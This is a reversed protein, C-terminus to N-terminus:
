KVKDLALGIEMAFVLTDFPMNHEIIYKYTGVESYTKNTEVLHESDWIDMGPDGIYEGKEDRVRLEYDKSETKGSPSIETVKVNATTYLYGTAYRFMLSMKYAQNNDEITVEFERKDKKIWEVEPSLDKNESYIRGEPQCASLTIAIILITLLNKM